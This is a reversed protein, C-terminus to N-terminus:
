NVAAVWPDLRSGTRLLVRYRPQGAPVRSQAIVNRVRRGLEPPVYVVQPTVEVIQARIRAPISPTAPQFHVRVAGRLILVKARDPHRARLTALERAADVVTLRTSAEDGGVCELALFARLPRLRRYHEAADPQSPLLSTDFGIEPLKSELWAPSSLWDQADVGAVRYQLRLTVAAHEESPLVANLEHESLEVESEPTGTRNRDAEYLVIGNSLAVVAAAAALHKYTM